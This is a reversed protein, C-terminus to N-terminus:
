NFAVVCAGFSRCGMTPHNSRGSSCVAALVELVEESLVRPADYVTHPQPAPWQAAGEGVPKQRAETPLDLLERQQLDDWLRNLDAELTAPDLSTAEALRQVIDQESRTGDALGWAAAALPNLVLVRNDRPHVVVAEDEV